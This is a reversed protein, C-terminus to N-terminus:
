TDSHARLWCYPVPGGLGHTLVWLAGVRSYPVPGGLTGMLAGVRSHTRRAHPCLAPAPGATACPVVVFSLSGFLPRVFLCACRLSLFGASARCGGSVISVRPRRPASWPASRPYQPTSPSLAGPEWQDPACRRTQPVHGLICGFPGAPAAARFRPLACSLARSPDPHQALRPPNPRPNPKPM